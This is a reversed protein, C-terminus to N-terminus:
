ISSFSERGRKCVEQQVIQVLFQLYAPMAEAAIRVVTRWSPAYSSAQGGHQVLSSPLGSGAAATRGELALTM